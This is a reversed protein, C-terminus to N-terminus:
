DKKKDSEIKHIDIKETNKKYYEVMESTADMLIISKGIQGFTMEYKKDNQLEDAIEQIQAKTPKNIFGVFHVISITDKDIYRAAVLGHQISDIFEKEDKKM